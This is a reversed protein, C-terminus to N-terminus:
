ILLGDNYLEQLDKLVNHWIITLYPSPMKSNSVQLLLDFMAPPHGHTWKNDHDMLLTTIDSDALRQTFLVMNPFNSSIIHISESIALYNTSNSIASLIKPDEATELTTM